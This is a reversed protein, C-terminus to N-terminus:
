SLETVKKIFYAFIKKSSEDNLYEPHWQIGLLFPHKQLEVAEIIGDESLASIKLNRMGFDVYDHHLSNVLICSSSLINSLLTNKLIYNKHWYQDSLGYHSDSELKKTMDFKTRQIANMGCLAQFGACIALLPKKHTIAYQIIYEDFLYWSSGGPVIFGACKELVFDLKQKDVDILNDKGMKIDVYNELSTPLLLISVVDSFPAIVRRIAENIQIIKQNDLNYYARGVIGILKMIIGKNLAKKNIKM